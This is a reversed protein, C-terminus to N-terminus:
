FKSDFSDDSELAPLINIDYHLLGIIRHFKPLCTLFILHNTSLPFHEQFNRFYKGNLLYYADLLQMHLAFITNHLLFLVSKPNRLGM